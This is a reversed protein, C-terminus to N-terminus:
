AGAVIETIQSTIDAQRRRNYIQELEKRRAAANDSASNMANMCAAYFSANSELLALNITSSLYVPLVDDITKKPSYELDQLLIEIQKYLRKNEKSLSLKGESSTLRGM